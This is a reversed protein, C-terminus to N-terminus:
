EDRLDTFAACRLPGCARHRDARHVRLQRDVRAWGVMALAEPGGSEIFWQAPPLKQKQKGWLPM